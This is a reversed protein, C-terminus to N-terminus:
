HHGGARGGRRGRLHPRPHLPLFERGAKQDDGGVVPLYGVRTGDATRPGFSVDRQRVRQRAALEAPNNHLPLEPHALVALLQAQKARTLTIREDLAGYGTRTAFLRDFAAELRAREAATAHEPYRRLDHYHPRYHYHM